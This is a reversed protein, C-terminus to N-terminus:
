HCSELQVSLRLRPFPPFLFKDLRQHMPSISLLRFRGRYRSLQLNEFLHPQLKGLSITDWDLSGTRSNLNRIDGFDNTTVDVAQLPRRDDGRGM